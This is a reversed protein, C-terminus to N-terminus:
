QMAELAQPTLRNGSERVPRPVWANLKGTLKKLTLTHQLVTIYDTLRTQLASTLSKEASLRDTFSAKGLEFQKRTRNTEQETILQQDYDTKLRAVAADLKAHTDLIQDTIQNQTTKFKFNAADATLTNIQTQHNDKDVNLERSYGMQVTWTPKNPITDYGDLGLQASFSLEHEGGQKQKRIDLLAQRADTEAKRLEPNQTMAQKILTTEAEAEFEPAAAPVTLTKNPLFGYDRIFSQQNIRLDSLASDLEIQAKKVALETSARDSDAAQGRRTKLDTERALKRTMILNAEAQEASSKLKLMTFWANVLDAIFGSVQAESKLTAQVLQLQVQEPLVTLQTASKGWIPWNAKLGMFNQWYSIVNPNGASNLGSETSKQAMNGVMELRPGFSFQKGWSAEVKPTSASSQSASDALSDYTNSKSANLNASLKIYPQCAALALAIKEQDLSLDRILVQLKPSSSPIQNVLSDMMPDLAAGLDTGSLVIERLDTASVAMGPTICFVLFLCVILRHM